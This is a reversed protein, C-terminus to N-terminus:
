GELRDRRSAAIAKIADAVEIAERVPLTLVVPRASPTLSMGVRITLTVGDATEIDVLRGDSLTVYAITHM